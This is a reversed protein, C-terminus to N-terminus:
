LNCNNNIQLTKNKGTPYKEELEAQTLSGFDSMWVSSKGIKRHERATIAGLTSSLAPAKGTGPRDRPRIGFEM